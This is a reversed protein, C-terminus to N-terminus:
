SRAEAGNSIAGGDISGFNNTLISRWITLIGTNIIGGGTTSANREIISDNVTLTGANSIGGAFLASGGRVTLGNLTLRGSTDVDFIRFLPAGPDREIITTEASEGNIIMASTIVPLGNSPGPFQLFSNDISTLTYTGAALNITNEEGNQNADNIAAILCTVDGSSCFFEGAHVPGSAWLGLLTVTLAFKKM